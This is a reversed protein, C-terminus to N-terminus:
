NVEHIADGLGSRCAKIFAKESIKRQGAMRAEQAKQKRYNKSGCYKIPELPILGEAKMRARYQQKSDIHMGLEEDYYGANAEKWPIISLNDVTGVGESVKVMKGEILKYVGQKGTYFRLKIQGEDNQYYEFRRLVAEKVKVFYQRPSHYLVGALVNLFGDYARYVAAEWGRMVVMDQRRMSLATM